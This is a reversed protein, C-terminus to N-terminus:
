VIVADAILLLTPPEHGTSGLLGRCVAPPFSRLPSVRLAIGIFLMPPAPANGTLAVTGFLLVTMALFLLGWRFWHKKQNEQDRRLMAVEAEIQELTM